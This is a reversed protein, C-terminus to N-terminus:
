LDLIEGSMHHMKLNKRRNAFLNLALIYRGTHCGTFRETRQYDSQSRVTIMATVSLNSTVSIFIPSM